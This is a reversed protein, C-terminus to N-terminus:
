DSNDGNVLECSESVMKDIKGSRAIQVCLKNKFVEEFKLSSTENLYFTIQKDTATNDNESSSNVNEDTNTKETTSESTENVDATGDTDMSNVDNKNTNNEDSKNKNKANEGESEKSSEANEGESDKSHEAKKGESDNSDKADQGESDKSNEAIKDEVDKSNGGNEDTKEDSRESEDKEDKEESNTTISKESIPENSTLPLPPTPLPDDPITICESTVNQLAKLSKVRLFSIPRDNNSSTGPKSVTVTSSTSAISTTIPTRRTLSVSAPLNISSVPTSVVPPPVPSASPSVFIVDDDHASSSSPPPPQQPKPPFRINKIGAIFETRLNKRIQILSNISTSLIEQLKNHVVALAEVSSATAQARNLQTLTYSLNSNVRAAARVTKEFWEHKMQNSPTTPRLARFTPQRPSASVFSSTSQRGPTPQVRIGGPLIKIYGPSPTTPRVSPGSTPGIVQVRPRPQSFTSQRPRFTTNGVRFTTGSTSAGATITPIPKPLIPVPKQTADELDGSKATSTSPQPSPADRTPDYDPDNMSSKRKKKKPESPHPDVYKKKQSLCCQTYDTTMFSTANELTAARSIERRVYEMFEACHIRLATLQLPNCRFCLWEDSDRIETLKKRGYNIRICKKCFVMECSSCCIVQGGQGCWRCYLESGDEDKEFEGSTYFHYCGKCILVKLLPHVFRNGQADLASGLHVNCATCHIKTFQVPNADGYTDQRMKHEEPSLNFTIEAGTMEDVYTSFVPEYLLPSKDGDSPPMDSSSITVPAEDVEMAIDPCLLSPDFDDDMEVDDMGNEGDGEKNEENESRPKTLTEKLLPSDNVGNEDKSEKQNGSDNPLGQVIEKSLESNKKSGDKTDNEKIEKNEAINTGAADKKEGDNNEESNENENQVENKPSSEELINESPKKDKCEEGASKLELPDKNAERHNTDSVSEIDGHSNLQKRVDSFTVETNSVGQEESDSDIKKDCNETCNNGDPTSSKDENEITDEGNENELSDKDNSDNTVETGQHNGENVAVHDDLRTENEKNESSKCKVISETFSHTDKLGMESNIESGRHSDTNENTRTSDFTQTQDRFSAHSGDSSNALINNDQIQEYTSLTDTEM